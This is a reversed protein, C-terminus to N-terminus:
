FLNKKTQKYFWASLIHLRFLLSRAVSRLLHYLCAYGKKINRNQWEWIFIVNYSPQDAIKKICRTLPQCRRQLFSFVMLNVIFYIETDRNIISWKENMWENREIFCESRHLVGSKNNTYWAFVFRSARWIIDVIPILCNEFQKIEFDGHDLVYHTPKNSSFGPNWDWALCWFSIRFTNRRRNERLLNRAFVRLTFWGAMFFNRLFRDNPTSKLSYTGGSIYLILVCLM